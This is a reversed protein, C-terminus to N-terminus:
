RRFKLFGRKHMVYEDQVCHMAIIGLFGLMGFIPVFCGLIFLVFMMLLKLDRIKRAFEMDKNNMNDDRKMINNLTNPRAGYACKESM